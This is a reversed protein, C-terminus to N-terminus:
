YLIGRILKQRVAGSQIKTLVDAKNTGTPEYAVRGIGAAMSERVFHYAISNSKKKLTSEPTSANNVVSM